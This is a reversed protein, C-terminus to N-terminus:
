GGGVFTVIELRDGEELLTEGYEAKRVISLNREVAVRSEPLSLERLLQLVTAGPAVVRKEGNVLIGAPKGM